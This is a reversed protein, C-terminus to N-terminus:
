CAMDMEWPTKTGKKLNCVPHTVACNDFAHDGGRTLPVVHDLHWNNQDVPKGCIYCFGGDRDYVAQRSFQEIICAQSITERRKAKTALYKPSEKRWQRIYANNAESNALWWERSKEARREKNKAYWRRTLESHRRKNNQVWRRNQELIREKNAM